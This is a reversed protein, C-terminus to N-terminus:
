CQIAVGLPQVGIAAAIAVGLRVGSVCRCQGVVLDSSLIVGQYESRM